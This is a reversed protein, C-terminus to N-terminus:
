EVQTTVDTHRQGRSAVDSLLACWVIVVQPMVLCSYILSTDASAIRSLGLAFGTRTDFPLLSPTARWLPRKIASAVHNVVSDRVGSALGCAASIGTESRASDM